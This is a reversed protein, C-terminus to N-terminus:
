FMSSNKKNIIMMTMKNREYVCFMVNELDYTVFLFSFTSVVSAAARLGLYLSCLCFYVFLYFCKLLVTFDAFGISQKFSNLSRFNVSSPLSNWVNIIRECFFSSRAYHKTRHKYLKFQHGRTSVTFCFVDLDV